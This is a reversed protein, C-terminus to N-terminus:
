VAAEALKMSIVKSIGPEEMTIGYINDAASMTRKNHTIVVIQSISSFDKLMDAFRGINAEDLAADVEDLFCFPSPRIKMLSFLIAIACLSREGGSLLSLPLWRRGAPRVSIEIEADLPPVGPTLEIKAEGGTFLKAFTASFIASLQQMTQSFSEVAKLDLEIILNRLNERASNLDGLQAEIFSLRERTKDYEEIALLNVPELSRLRAKGDDIEARAKPASAVTYPLTELEPLTLNYENLLKESLATMEGELKALAIELAAADGGAARGSKEAARFREELDFIGSKLREREQKLKGLDDFIVNKAAPDSGATLAALESRHAQLSFRTKALEEELRRNEAQLFELKLQRTAEREKAEVLSFIERGSFFAVIASLTNALQRTEEILPRILEALHGASLDALEDSQPAQVEATKRELEASKQELGALQSEARRLEGEVFRRNLELDRARDKELDLKAALEDLRTENLRLKERLAALEEESRQEAAAKEASVQEAAKREEELRLKKELLAALSKKSL